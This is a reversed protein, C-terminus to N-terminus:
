RPIATTAAAALVRAAGSWDAPTSRSRILAFYHAHATVDPRLGAYSLLTNSAHYRVLYDPDQVCSALAEIIPRTPRFATLAIAADFRDNWFGAGLLVRLVERSWSEDGTLQHLAQAVRLHFGVPHKGIHETLQAIFRARSENSLPLRAVAQAALPDHEALGDALADEVFVPDSCWLADFAAYDPGDHWVLYPEGFADLRFRSWSVSTSPM